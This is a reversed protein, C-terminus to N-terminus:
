RPLPTPELPTADIACHTLRLPRHVTPRTLNPRLADDRITVLSLVSGLLLAGACIWMSTRFAVSLQAPDAYGEGTLGVLVPLGAVAFLSAARAVANNVGSAVGAHRDEATALVTATLPAVVFSLGLGFTGAAPLVDLVYSAGPGIRTYMIVGLAAIATGGVMPWRPGIRQALAGNRSSLLLMLVTLPLLAAGAALPSYGAVVQLQLVLMFSVGGLAAYVVLTVINVATFQRSSFVDLPVLADEGRRRELAVFAAGLILAAAGVTAAIWGGGTGGARILAFTAAALAASGLVAGVIDFHGTAKENRSEPVHRLAVLLVAAAIPLNILFAWRWGPGTILWGGLFPGAAVAV